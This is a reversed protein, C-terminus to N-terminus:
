GNITLVRACKCLRVGREGVGAVVAMLRRIKGEIGHLNRRHVRVRILYEGPTFSARVGARRLHIATLVLQSYVEAICRRSKTRSAAPASRAPPPVAARGPTRACVAEGPAPAAAPPLANFTSM